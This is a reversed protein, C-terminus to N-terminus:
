FLYTLGAKVTRGNITRALAVGNSNPNADLETIGIANFVNNVYLSAKLDTLIAYHAFLNVTVYGPMVQTDSNDAYSSTTGIINAGLDYNDAYYGPTLQYVFKAQRQPQNGIQAPNQADSAITMHTYTGGGSLAFGQYHLSAELELGEANYTANLLPNAGQAIKTVDYNTELTHAYFGTAFLSINESKWKVGGEYQQVMNVASNQAVSGSPLVGGGFLIREANARGGQSARVFLALSPDVLYNAGFSYSLYRKTYDVPLATSPDNLVGPLTPVSANGTALQQQVGGGAYNGSASAFDYRLSGDINLKEKEWSAALYPADTGYTLNYTRVCCYGFGANYGVLGNLTVPKGAANSVNLLQAGKGQVAELYENWHWDEDIYQTNHFYGLTFHAKGAAVDFDKTLKADDTFNGLNNLTTNFMTVTLAQGNGNLAAPNTITQGANAGTAFSLSSGAGGIANAQSAAGAVSAPYMGIFDGSNNSYRFKNDVVWDNKLTYKFEGGVSGDITHYGDSVPTSIRAGSSNYSADTLLNKTLLTGSQASFGPVSSVKPNSPSGTIQVPIPLYAPATDNLYKFDLRIFGNALDHTINGRIQGGNETQFDATRPGNGDRYFGGIHFRWGNTIPGGYDFNYRQENYDLGTEFGFSGGEVSGDKSIFNIVAGPADSAFTSASGGRVVEVNQINADFRMFTDPTAFDIDGFQLVPLGDEQFQVYKAGGSALPLGRVSVNANGEGGSAESRIGPIDRLIDAVSSPASQAIQDPDLTSVSVSARMKTTNVSTATVLITDLELPDARKEAAPQDIDAAVARVSVQLACVAVGLMLSNVLNLKM